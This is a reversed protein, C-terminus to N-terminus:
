NNEANIKSEKLKKIKNEISTLLKSATVYKEMKESSLIDIHRIGYQRLAESLDRSIKAIRKKNQQARYAKYLIVIFVLIIWPMEIEIAFDFM